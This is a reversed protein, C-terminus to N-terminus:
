CSDDTGCYIKNEGDRMPIKHQLIKKERAVQEVGGSTAEEIVRLDKQVTEM